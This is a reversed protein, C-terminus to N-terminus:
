LKRHDAMPMQKRTKNILSKSLSLTAIEPSDASMDVLVKGWPDVVMTHGYSARSEGEVEVVGAQAPAVIYCQSEIARARILTEWHARGTARTFASPVYIIEAGLKAYTLFLESFRVDYCISFAMKWNNLEIANSENGAEFQDSERIILSGMDLDFLHIKRYVPKVEGEKNIMLTANTIGRDEKLPIAGMNIFIKNDQALNQLAKIQSCELELGPSSNKVKNYLSNEPLCLGHVESKNDLSDWLKIISQLNAEPDEGSKMQMVALNLKDM